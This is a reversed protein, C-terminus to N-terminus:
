GPNQSEKNYNGNRKNFNVVFEIAISKNKTKESVSKWRSDGARYNVYYYGNSRKFLFM